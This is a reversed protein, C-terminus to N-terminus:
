KKINITIDISDINYKQIDESLTFYIRRNNHKLKNRKKAFGKQKESLTKNEKIGNKKKSRILKRKEQINKFSQIKNKIKQKLSSKEKNFVLERLEEIEREISRQKINVDNTILELLNDFKFQGEILVKNINYSSLFKRVSLDDEILITIIEIYKNIELIQKILYYLDIEGDISVNLVILNIDENTKLFEIIGEKYIIDKYLIKYKDIYKLEKKLKNYLEVNNLATLIKM